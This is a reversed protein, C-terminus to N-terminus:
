CTPTNTYLPISITSRSVDDDINGKGRWTTWAGREDWREADLTGCGGVWGCDRGDSQPVAFFFFGVMTGGLDEEWLRRDIRVRIRRCRWGRVWGMRERRSFEQMPWRPNVDPIEVDSMCVCLCWFFLSCPLGTPRVTGAWAWPWPCARMDRRCTEAQRVAHASHM